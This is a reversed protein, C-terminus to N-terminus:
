KFLGIHRIRLTSTKLLATCKSDILDEQFSFHCNVVYFSIQKIQEQCFQLVFNWSINRHIRYNCIFNMFELYFGPCKTVLDQHGISGSLIFFIDQFPALFFFGPCLSLHFSHWIPAKEESDM